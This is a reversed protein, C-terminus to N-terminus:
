AAVQKAVIAEDVAERGLVAGVVGRGEKTLDEPQKVFVGEPVAAVFPCLKREADKGNNQRRGTYSLTLFAKARTMAVFLLRREERVAEADEARYFPFTGDECAPVFVVPWELGKAAHCTSITVKPKSKDDKAEETETDTSLM